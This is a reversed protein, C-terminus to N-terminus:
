KLKQWYLIPFDTTSGEMTWPNAEDNGFKWNLKNKPSTFAAKAEEESMVITPCADYQTVNMSDGKLTSLIINSGAIDGGCSLQGLPNNISKKSVIKSNAALNGGVTEGRMVEMRGAIGGIYSGEGYIASTSYNNMFILPTGLVESPYSDRYALIPRNVYGALGGVYEGGRLTGTSYNNYIHSSTVSGAVGGVAHQGTIDAGSFSGAIVALDAFGALGGVYYKGEINGNSGCEIIRQEKGGGVIGGVFIDGSVKGNFHSRFQKGRYGTVGVIGGVWYSGKILGAAASNKVDGIMNSGVTGGVYVRGFIEGDFRCNEIRGEYQSGIIGGVSDSGRLNGKFSSDIITTEEIGVEELDEDEIGKLDDTADGAIIGAIGGVDGFGEIASISHVNELASLVVKGVIGGINFRGNIKGEFKNNIMKTLTAEGLLGGVDNKGKVSGIVHVNIIESKFACGAIGGVYEGGIIGGKDNDIEVVLNKIISGYAAGFLGVCSFDMLNIWLGSIKHNNGNFKITSTSMWEDETKGVPKWEDTLEVDNLLIYSGESIPQINKMDQVSRIEKVQAIAYLNIDENIIFNKLAVSSEAGYWLAKDSSFDLVKGVSYEKEEVLDLKEDYFRVIAAFSNGTVLFLILTYIFIRMNEAEPPM